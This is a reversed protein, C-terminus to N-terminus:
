LVLVTFRLYYFGKINGPKLCTNINEPDDSIFPQDCQFHHDVLDTESDGRNTATRKKTFFM